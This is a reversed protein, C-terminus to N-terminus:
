ASVGSNGRSWGDIVQFALNIVDPDLGDRVLRAYDHALAKLAEPETMSRRAGTTAGTLNAFQLAWHPATRRVWRGVRVQGRTERASADAETWAVIAHAAKM